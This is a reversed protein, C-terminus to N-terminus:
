MKLIFKDGLKETLLNDCAFLEDPNQNIKPINRVRTDGGFVIIFNARDSIIYEIEDYPVTTKSYGSMLLLGNEDFQAMQPSKKEFGQEYMMRCFSKIQSQKAKKGLFSILLMTGTLIVIAVAKGPFYDDGTENFYEIYIIVGFIFGFILPVLVSKLMQKKSLTGKERAFVMNADLMTQYDNKFTFSIKREM